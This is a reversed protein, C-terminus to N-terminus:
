GGAEEAFGEEAQPASLEPSVSGPLLCAEQVSHQFARRM